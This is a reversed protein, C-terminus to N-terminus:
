ALAGMALVAVAVVLTARTLRDATPLAAALRSSSRRLRAPDRVPWMGVLPAARLGGFVAGVLAGGTVSRTLAAAALTTYVASTTVITTVGLGLQVGFGLGYVWGRYRQLWREDVQRHRTPLRLGALGADAALGLAAAAALALLAAAEPLGGLAAAGGAGALAGIATGAGLSGLVYAAVTLGWRQGRGAEGVPSISTLM